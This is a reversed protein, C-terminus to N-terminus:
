QKQLAGCPNTYRMRIWVVNLQKIAMYEELVLPNLADSSVGM